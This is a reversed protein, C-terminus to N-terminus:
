IALGDHSLVASEQKRDLLNGFRLRENCQVVTREVSTPLCSIFYTTIKILPSRNCPAVASPDGIQMELADGQM